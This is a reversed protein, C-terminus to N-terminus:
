GSRRFVRRIREWLVSFFLALGKIPEAQAQQTGTAGTEPAAAASSEQELRSRLCNAFDELLRKSIDQMMGGRGFSALRGTITFDTDVDVRTRGGTETVTSTITARASGQGRKDTGDAHLTARHATEDLSDIRLEGRYAATTPGIKVTFNGKYVGDDGVETLEAGPVCPAVREVDILMEWVRGLPAAVEFSQELKM